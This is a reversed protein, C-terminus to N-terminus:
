VMDPLAYAPPSVPSRLSSGVPRENPTGPDWEVVYDPLMHSHMSFAAPRGDLAQGESASFGGVNELFGGVNELSGGVEHADLSGVNGLGGGGNGAGPSSSGVVKKEVWEQDSTDWSVVHNFDTGDESSSERASARLEQRTLSDIDTAEGSSPNTAHSQNKNSSDLVSQRASKLESRITAREEHTGGGAEAEAENREAEDGEEELTGDESGISGGLVSVQSMRRIIEVIPDVTEKAGSGSDVESHDLLPSSTEEKAVESGGKVFGGSERTEEGEGHCSDDEEGSVCEFRLGTESLCKTGEQDLYREVEEAGSEPLREGEEERLLFSEEENAGEREENRDPLHEAEEGHWTDAEESSDQSDNEPIPTLSAVRHRGYPMEEAERCEAANCEAANYDDEVELGMSSVRAREEWANEDAIELLEGTWKQARPVGLAETSRQPDGEGEGLRPTNGYGFAEREEEIVVTQIGNRGNREKSFRSAAIPTEPVGNQALRMMGRELKRGGESHGDAKRGGGNREGENWQVEVGGGTPGGAKIEREVESDAEREPDVEPPLQMTGLKKNRNRGDEKRPDRDGAKQARGDAARADSKLGEEPEPEQEPPVHMMGLRMSADLIASQEDLRMMAEMLQVYLRSVEQEFLEKQEVLRKQM